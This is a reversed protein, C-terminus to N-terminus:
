KRPLAGAITHNIVEHSPRMGSFIIFLCKTRACWAWYTGQIKIKKHNHAHHKWCSTHAERRKEKKEGEPHRDELLNRCEKIRQIIHLVPVPFTFFLFTFAFRVEEDDRKRKVEHPGCRCYLSLSISLTRDMFHFFFPHLPRLLKRKEKTTATWYVVIEKCKIILHVAGCFSFSVQQERKEESEKHHHAPVAHRMECLFSSFLDAHVSNM